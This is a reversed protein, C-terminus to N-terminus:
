EEIEINMSLELFKGSKKAKGIVDDTIVEGQNIITSGDDSEIDRSVKKGLMYKIQRREFIESLSEKSSDDAADEVAVEIGADSGFAPEILFGGCFVATAM